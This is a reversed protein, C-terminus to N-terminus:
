SGRGRRRGGRSMSSRRKAAANHNHNNNTHNNHNNSHSFIQLPIYGQEQDDISLAEHNAHHISNQRLRLNEFIEVDNKTERNGELLLMDSGGGMLGTTASSLSSAVPSLPPPIKSISYSRRSRTDSSQPSSPSENYADGTEAMKLQQLCQEFVQAQSLGPTVEVEFVWKVTLLLIKYLYRSAMFDLFLLFISLMMLCVFAYQLIMGQCYQPNSPLSSPSTSDEHTYKDHETKYEPCLQTELITDIVSAKFYNLAVLVALLIWSLPSVEAVQAIYDSFLAGVYKAFNFDAPVTPHLKM